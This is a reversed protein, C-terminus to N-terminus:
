CIGVWRLATLQDQFGVDGPADGEGGYLFGFPGLRYNVSVIVVDYTALATGNYLPLFISGSKLAGGYIWFMVPKLTSINGTVPTWVNVFLCDESFDKILPKLSDDNQYCSHSM